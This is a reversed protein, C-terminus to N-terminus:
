RPRVVHVVHCETAASAESAADRGPPDDASTEASVSNTDQAIRTSEYRVTGASTRSIACFDMPMIFVSSSSSHVKTGRGADAEENGGVSQRLPLAEAIFTVREFRTDTVQCVPLKRPASPVGM